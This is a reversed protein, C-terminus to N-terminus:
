VISRKQIEIKLQNNENLFNIYCKNKRAESILKIVEENNFVKKSQQNIIFDIKNNLENVRTQIRQLIETDTM